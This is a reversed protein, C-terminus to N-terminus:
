YCYTSCDFEKRKKLFIIYYTANLGRLGLCEMLHIVSNEKVVKVLSWLKYHKLCIPLIKYKKKSVLLISHIIMQKMRMVLCSVKHLYNLFFKCVLLSGTAM